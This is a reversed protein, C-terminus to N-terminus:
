VQTSWEWSERGLAFKPGCEYTQIAKTSVFSGGLSLDFDIVSILM